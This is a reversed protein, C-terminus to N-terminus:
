HLYGQYRVVFGNVIPCIHFNLTHVHQQADREHWNSHFNTKLYFFVIKKFDAETASSLVVMFNIRGTFWFSSIKFETTQIMKFIQVYSPHITLIQFRFDSSIVEARTYQSSFCILYRNIRVLSLFVCHKM